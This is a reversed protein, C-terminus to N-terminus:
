RGGDQVSRAPRATWLWDALVERKTTGFERSEQVRRGHNAESPVRITAALSAMGIDIGCMRDRYLPEDAVEEVRKAAEGATLQDNCPPVARPAPAIPLFQGANSSAVIFPGRLLGAGPTLSIRPRLRVLFCVVDRATGGAM